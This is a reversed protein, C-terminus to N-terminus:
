EAPRVYRNTLGVVEVATDALRQNIQPLGSFEAREDSFYDPVGELGPLPQWPNLRALQSEDSCACIGASGAIRMARWCMPRVLGRWLDQQELYKAIAVGNVSLTPGIFYFHDIPDSVSTAEAATEFLIRGLGTLAVTSYSRGHRTWSGNFYTAIHPHEPPSWLECGSIRLESIQLSDASVANSNSHFTLKLMSRATNLM